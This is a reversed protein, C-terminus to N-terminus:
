IWCLCSSVLFGGCTPECEFACRVVRTVLYTNTLQASLSALLSFFARSSPISLGYSELKVPLHDPNFSLRVENRTPYIDAESSLTKM